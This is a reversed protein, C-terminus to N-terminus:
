PGLRTCETTAEHVNGGFKTAKRTACRRLNLDNMCQKFEPTGEVHGM